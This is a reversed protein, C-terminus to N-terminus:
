GLRERLWPLCVEAQARQFARVHPIGPPPPQLSAHVFYGTVATLFTTVAEPDAARGVPHAALMEAPAPGGELALSPLWGVLDCFAAGRVAHPWDVVVATGDATILLNDGRLDM